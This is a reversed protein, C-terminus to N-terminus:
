SYNDAQTQYMVSYAGGLTMLEEHSGMETILGDQVVCIYDAMKVTSFRHSILIVTKDGALRNFEEFVEYEAMADLASTPEDLVVIQSRRLYARALAIKQWEGVSLEEGDAFWRGLVTEYGHPLKNIFGDAGSLQAANEISADDQKLQSDGYWINSRASHQYRAYDQFIVSIERRLDGTTFDRIDIGDFSISGEVPDYLRCLLKILTTKGSGNLGVIAVKEGPKIRLNIGRLCPRESGPYQFVVDKFEIGGSLSSPVPTPNPPECIKPKLDLLEFLNALFLNNEYVGALGGFIGQVNGQARRLAQFFMVLAGLTIAGEVTRYALFLLSGFVALMGLAQAAFDELARRTSLAAREKRLHKRITRFGDRFLDGLGFLRIEKAHEDGTLLWHFYGARREDQTQGRHLRHLRGSNRIGVLLAPAAAAFIIAAIGWHFTFLLAAMALFSIGNEGLRVLGDLLRMPRYPAEEQARHLIDHYRPNEYYELDLEMAKAHVQDHMWDSFVMRHIERVLGGASACLVSAMLVLAQLALLVVVGTFAQKKDAATTAVVVADIILKTLYLVLLPLLGQIVVLAQSALTWRPGSRWLLWLASRMTTILTKM